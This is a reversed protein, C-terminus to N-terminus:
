ALDILKPFEVIFLSGISSQDIVKLTQEQCSNSPSRDVKNGASHKETDNQLFFTYM